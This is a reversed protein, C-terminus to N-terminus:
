IIFFFSINWKNSIYLASFIDLGGYGPHGNSSFYLIGNKNIFPFLEKGPTNIEEGLNQPKGWSDGEKTSVYIDSGGYGNPMNSTFYIKKGDASITPHACSYNDSNFELKKKNKWKDNILEVQFIQLFFREQKKVSETFYM